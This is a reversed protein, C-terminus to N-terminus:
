QINNNRFTYRHDTVNVYSNIINCLHRPVLGNIIKYMLFHRQRERRDRPTDWGTDRYLLLKSAYDNCGTVIRAAQIHLKEMEFFYNEHRPASDWVIRGYELIPRVLAFIIELESRHVKFKLARLM